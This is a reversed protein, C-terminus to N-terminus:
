TKTAEIKRKQKRVTEIEQMCQILGSDANNDFMVNLNCPSPLQKFISLGLSARSLLSRSVRAKMANYLPNPKIRKDFLRPHAELLNCVDTLFSVPHHGSGGLFSLVAELATRPLEILFDIQLFYLYNILSREHSEADPLPGAAGRTRTNIM